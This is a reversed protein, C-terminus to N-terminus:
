KHKEGLYPYTAKSSVPQAESPVSGVTSCLLSKPPDLAEELALLAFCHAMSFDAINGALFRLQLGAYTRWDPENTLAALRVWCLRQWRTAPLFRVTM